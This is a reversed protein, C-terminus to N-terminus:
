PEVLTYELRTAYWGPEVRLSLNGIVLQVPIQRWSGTGRFIEKDLEGIEVGPWQSDGFISGEQDLKEGDGTRLLYLRLEAPWLDDVRRVLVQWDGTATVDIKTHASSSAITSPLEGGPFPLDAATLTAEWDPANGSPSVSLSLQARCVDGFALGALVILWCLITRRLM